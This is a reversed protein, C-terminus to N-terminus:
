AVFDAAVQGAEDAFVVGLLEDVVGVPDVKFEAGIFVDFTEVLTLFDLIDAFAGNLGTQLQHVAGDAVETRFLSLFEIVVNFLVKQIVAHLDEEAILVGIDNQFVGAAFPHDDVLGVAAVGPFDFRFRHDDGGAAAAGVFQFFHAGAVVDGVTGAGHIDAYPYFDAVFDHFFHVFNQILGLEDAIGVGEAILHAGEALVGAAEDALFIVIVIQSHDVTMGIFLQFGIVGIQRDETGVVESRGEVLGDGVGLFHALEGIHQPVTSDHYLTVAINEVAFAGPFLFQALGVHAGCQFVGHGAIDGGGHGVAGHDVDDVENLRHIM